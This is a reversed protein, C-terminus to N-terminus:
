CIASLAELEEDTFLERLQRSEEKVANYAAITESVKCGDYGYDAAFEDITGVDLAELSALLSYADPRGDTGAPGFEKTDALFKLAKARKTGTFAERPSDGFTEPWNYREGYCAFMRAEFDAISEHWDAKYVRSGRELRFKWIGNKWKRQAAIPARSVEQGAYRFLIRAGTAELFASAQGAFDNADGLARIKDALKESM